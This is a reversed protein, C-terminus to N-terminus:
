LHVHCSVYPAMNLESRLESEIRNLNGGQGPRGSDRTKPTHNHEEKSVKENDKTIGSQHM